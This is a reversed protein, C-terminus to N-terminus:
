FLGFRKKKARVPRKPDLVLSLNKWDLAEMLAPLGHTRALEIEARHLAVLSLIEITRGDPRTLTCPGELSVGPVLVWGALKTSPHLPAPPEDFAVTEGLRLVAGYRHPYEAVMLLSDIPWAAETASQKLAHGVPWSPPLRLVLEARTAGSDAVAGPMPHASLGDTVVTWWPSADTPQFMHLAPAAAERPSPSNASRNGSWYAHAGFLRELQERLSGPAADVQKDPGLGRGVLETAGHARLYAEIEPHNFELAAALPTPFGRNGANVDAGAEVLLRVVALHGSRAAYILPNESHIDAGRELLLRVAEVAGERAAEVIATGGTSFPRADVDVGRDLTWALVRTANDTAATVLLFARKKEDAHDFLDLLGSTDDVECARFIQENIDDAM